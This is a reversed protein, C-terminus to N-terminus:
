WGRSRLEDRIEDEIIRLWRDQNQQASVDLFKKVTGPARLNKGGANEEHIYYAYNFRGNKWREVANATIEGTLNLGIGQIQQPTINRRLTGKDIPAIDVAERKWDDLADQLGVRAGASMDNVTENLDRIFQSLDLELEIRM